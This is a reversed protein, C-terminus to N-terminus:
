LDGSKLDFYLCSVVGEHNQFSSYKAECTGEALPKQAIATVKM